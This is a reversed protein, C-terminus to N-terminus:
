DTCYIGRCRLGADESHGCNHSGIGNHPCNVLRAERSNCVLDDLHIPGTGQGFPARSLAQAGATISLFEHSLMVAVSWSALGVIYKECTPLFYMCGTNPM